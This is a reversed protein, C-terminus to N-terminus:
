NNKITPGGGTKIPRKPVTTHQGGSADHVVITYDVKGTADADYTATVQTNSYHPDHIAGNDPRIKAFTFYENAIQTWQIQDSAQATAILPIVVVEPDATTDLAVQVKIAM